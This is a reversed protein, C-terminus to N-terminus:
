RCLLLAAKFLHLIRGCCYSRWCRFLRRKLEVLTKFSRRNKKKILFTGGLIFFWVPFPSMQLVLRHRASTVRAVIFVDSVASFSVVYKVAAGIISVGFIYVNISLFIELFGSPLLTISLSSVTLLFFFTKSSLSSMQLVLKCIISVSTLVVLFLFLLFVLLKLIIL